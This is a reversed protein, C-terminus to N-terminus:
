DPLKAPMPSGTNVPRLEIATVDFVSRAPKLEGGVILRFPGEKPPLPKGNEEDALIVPQTKFSKEVEAIALVTTFGDSGTVILIQNVPAGHLRKDSPAGVTALIDSVLAGTYTAKQGYPITVSARSMGRLDAETVTATTDHPGKVLISQAAAAGAFATAFAIGVLWRHM